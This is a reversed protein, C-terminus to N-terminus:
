ENPRDTASEGTLFTAVAAGLGACSKSETFTAAGMPVCFPGVGVCLFWPRGEALARITGAEVVQKLDYVSAELRSKRDWLMGFWTIAGGGGGAGGILPEGSQETGGHISIVYHLRMETMRERLVPENALLTFYKRREDDNDPYGYYFINRRFEDPTIVRVGPRANRLADSICTVADNELPSETSILIAVTERAEIATETQRAFQVQSTTCGGWLSVLSLFLLIVWGSKMPDTM